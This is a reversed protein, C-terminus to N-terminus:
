SVYEVVSLWLSLLAHLWTQQRKPTEGRLERLAIRPLHKNQKTSCMASDATDLCYLLYQYPLCEESHVQSASVLVWKPVISYTFLFPFWNDRLTWCSSGVQMRDLATEHISTLEGEGQGLLIHVPQFLTPCPQPRTGPSPALCDYEVFVPGSCSFKHSHCHMLDQLIQGRTKKSEKQWQGYNQTSRHNETFLHLDSGDWVEELSCLCIQIGFGCVIEALDLTPTSEDDELTEWM